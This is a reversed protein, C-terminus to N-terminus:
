IEVSAYVLADKLALSESYIIRPGRDLEDVLYAVSINAYWTVFPM